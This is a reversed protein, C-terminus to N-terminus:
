LDPLLKTLNQRCDFVTAIKITKSEIWYIIKHNGVVVYRYEIVRSKLLEEKQGSKPNTKLHITSEVLQKIIKRQLPKILKYVNSSM